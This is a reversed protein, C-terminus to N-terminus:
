TGDRKAQRLIARWRAPDHVVSTGDKAGEAIALLERGSNDFVSWSSALPQFLEFFNGLGRSYRRRVTEEPVDHGGKEVRSRVRQMALEPSVLSVYVVHVSFGREMSERLFPAFTKSALTTEFGFSRGQDRFSRIRALMLRGAEIASSAPSHPSLAQAILDANVFAQVGLESPFLVRAVTSKGAGNPGGLVFIEPQQSQV